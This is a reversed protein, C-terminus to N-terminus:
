EIMKILIDCFLWMIGCVDQSKTFIKQISVKIRGAYNFM